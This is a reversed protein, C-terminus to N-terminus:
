RPRAPQANLEQELREGLNSAEAKRRLEEMSSASIGGAAKVAAEPAPQAGPTAIPSASPKAPTVPTAAQVGWNLARARGARLKERAEASLGTDDVLHGNVIVQTRPRGPASPSYWDPAVNSMRKAGSADRWLYIDAVAPLATLAGALLLLARM